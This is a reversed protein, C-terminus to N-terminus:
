QKGVETLCSKLGLLVSTKKQLTPQTYHMTKGNAKGLVCPPQNYKLGFPFNSESKNQHNELVYNLALLM